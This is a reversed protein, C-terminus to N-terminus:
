WTQSAVLSPSERPNSPPNPQRLLTHSSSPSLSYALYRTHLVPPVPFSSSSAFALFRPHGPPYAEPSPPLSLLAVLFPLLFLFFFFGSLLSLALTPLFPRSPSYTLCVPAPSVCYALKGNALASLPLHVFFALLFLLFCCFLPFPLAFSSFSSFPFYFPFFLSM